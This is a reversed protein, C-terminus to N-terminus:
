RYVLMAAVRAHESCTGLFGTTAQFLTKNTAIANRQKDPRRRNYKIGYDDFFDLWASFDRKVSGAGQLRAAAGKDRKSFHTWLNPDEIEVELDVFQLLKLTEEFAQHLKLTRLVLSRDAPNFVAYGTNRGPDIGLYIKKKQTM